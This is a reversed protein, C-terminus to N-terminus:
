SAPQRALTPAAAPFPTAVLARIMGDSKSLLYLEGAQDIALRIDARGGGTLDSVIASGPLRALPGGRARYEDAVIEYMRDFRELGAANRPNDWLLELRHFAAVTQPNGDDAGTVAALDSYFLQGTTIDGFILKGTLEPMRTGRYVFAGAIADGYGLAPNHPYQIVPYVYNDATDTPPVAGNATGTQLNLVFTGEREGYGYNAGRRVINVEEWSHFGIDAAILRNSVPDWSLRHPNRFGYAWIESRFSGGISVAFPNDLPIGYRVPGNGDPDDPHIRLIKGQLVDLRQPTPHLAANNREGAGGDGLALYLNRWDSHAANSALPNFLLDGMPHIRGNFEVRMLERATGQFVTDTPITDRWEILVAQRTNANDNGPAENATTPSSAGANSFGPFTTASPIRRPDGDNTDVEIHVTYFKGANPSGAVHYEPDFQFTVLGNAYGNARTFAGFLGTAAPTEAVNRNFDLYTVFERTARNLIYLQGNLDNVFFRNLIPGPEERLFNVRAVYVANDTVGALVGSQPVAAYDQLQVTVVGSAAWTTPLLPSLLLAFGLTACVRPIFPTSPM